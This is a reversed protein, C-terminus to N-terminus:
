KVNILSDWVGNKTYIIDSIFRFFDIEKNLKLTKFYETPYTTEVSLVNKITLIIMLIFVLILRYEKNGLVMYQFLFSEM